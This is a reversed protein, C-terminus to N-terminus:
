ASAKIVWLALVVVAPYALRVFFEQMDTMITDSIYNTLYHNLTRDLSLALVIILAMMVLKILDWKKMIMRDWLTVEAVPAAPGQSAYMAAPPQYPVEPAQVHPATAKPIEQTPAAHASAPAAAQMDFSLGGYAMSLDTGDM